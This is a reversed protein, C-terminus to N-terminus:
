EVLKVGCFPCTKLESGGHYINTITKEKGKTIVEIRKRINELKECCYEKKMRIIESWM